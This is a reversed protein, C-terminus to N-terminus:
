YGDEQDTQDKKPMHNNLRQLEVEVQLEDVSKDCAGSDKLTDKYMISENFVVNRSTVIKPSEDDLRYLIYGKVGELYGLLVCKVARPELKGQKDHPYVVCGFIRLVGYDSPHGSWMEMPTKKEIARSPSRIILYAATCTVEAWFTKPFESQILLCRVKDTLTRNMREAIGNHQLTGAVTLHRAIGSEICLHEFEQNCFELGNDTRPKKVM